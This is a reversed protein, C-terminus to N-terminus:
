AQRSGDRSVPALLPGPGKLATRAWSARGAALSRCTTRGADPWTAAATSRSSRARSSRREALYLVAAAVDGPTGPRGLPIRATLERRRAAPVAEPWLVTGPAVANVRVRRRWSSRWASPPVSWPRRRPATPPTAAGPWWPRRRRRRRQGGIRGLRRLLPLSRAPSSCPRRPRQPGHPRRLRGRRDARAAAGRLRRRQERAPRPPRLARPLRAALRAPGDPTASTAPCRPRSAARATPATTRRWRTAAAPSPARSPRARGARRRRHGPRGQSGRRPM